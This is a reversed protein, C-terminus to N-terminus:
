EKSPLASAVAAKMKALGTQVVTRPDQEWYDRNFLELSLMGTYGARALDSLIQDLPAVGDGPYVRQADTIVNRPPEAPYDNMHVLALTQPGILKLAEFTGGGKYMHFVDGLICAEPAGSEGAVLLAEGLRCLIQSHGWFELIPTVGYERGVEVLQGYREALDLLPIDPRDLIGMPPAALGTCGLAVALDMNRRAEDLAAVRVTADPSGWEFFGILDPVVLGRDDLQKKLDAVDGGQEVYADLERIWPEVGDYGAEAVLDITEPLSLAQERITSTNVCYSFPSHQVSM